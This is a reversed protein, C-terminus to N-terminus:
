PTHTGAARELRRAMARLREALEPPEHVDFDVGFM